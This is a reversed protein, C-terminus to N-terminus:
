TKELTAERLGAATGSRTGSWSLWSGAFLALEEQIPCPLGVHRHGPEDLALNAGVEGAADERVAEAGHM